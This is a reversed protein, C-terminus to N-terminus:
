QNKKFYDYKISFAQDNLWKKIMADDFLKGVVLYNSNLLTPSFDPIESLVFLYGHSHTFRIKGNINLLFGVHSDLGIIYVGEGTKQLHDLLIDISINSFRKIYKSQILNKIINESPQRAMKSKMKFNCNRLVNVVFFGCAVAGDLPNEAVGNYNWPTGYWAPLVNASISRNLYSRIENYIKRKDNNSTAHKFSKIFKLRETEIEKLTEQYHFKDWLISGGVILISGIICLGFIIFIRKIITM